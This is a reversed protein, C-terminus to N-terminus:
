SSKSKIYGSSSESPEPMDNAQTMLQKKLAQIDPIGARLARMAVIIESSAMYTKALQRRLEMAENGADLLQQETKSIFKQEAM